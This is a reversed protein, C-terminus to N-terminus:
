SENPADKIIRKIRHMSFGVGKLAYPSESLFVRKNIFDMKIIHLKLHELDKLICIAGPKIRKICPRNSM